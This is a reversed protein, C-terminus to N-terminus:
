LTTKLKIGVLIRVEMHFRQLKVTEMEEANQDNSCENSNDILNQKYCEPCKRDLGELNKRAGKAVL